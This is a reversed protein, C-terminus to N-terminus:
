RDRWHDLIALANTTGIRSCGAGVAELVQDPSEFHGATKVAISEPLYKRVLRVDDLNHPLSAFDAESREIIRCAIIKLEETLHLTDVMVKLIAGEKRCAEVLQSLETQVHQFERSLLKSITVVAELERAGRRLLDRAEYLKTATNQIGDPWAVVSGIRLASGELARMALEIDCPRVLACAFGRGKASKLSELVQVDTLEPALLPFDLLRAFDSPSAPPLVPQPDM